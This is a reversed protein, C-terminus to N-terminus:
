SGLFNGWRATQVKEKIGIGSGKHSSGILRIGSDFVGYVMKKVCYNQFMYLTILMWPGELKM